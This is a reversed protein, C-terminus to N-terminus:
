GSDPPVTLQLRAGRPSTQLRLDGGMRRALERGIALGLGFGGGEGPASGRQFREFIREADDAPVGPGDDYVAISPRAGNTAEIRIATGEPAFRLANDVLGRVIQAIRSPDGRAYSAGRPASLDLGGLQARPGLEAVVGRAIAALDVREDRLDVGADLVSLDLLDRALAGLRGAQERAREVQVRAQGPREAGPELEDSALELMVGLSALPTRLEHSATSVFRQRAQEQRSLREQMAAFDRALDGVEDAHRLAPLEGPASGSALRGTAERLDELGRLLRRATIAGLLAALLIGALAAVALARRVVRVAIAVDGADRRLVVRAPRGGVSLPVSVRLDEGSRRKDGADTDVLVGRGGLVVVRAASRRHLEEALVRLSEDGHAAAFAPTLAAIRDRLAREDEHRLRGELPELLALAVVAVTAAATLVLAGVLRARLGPRV